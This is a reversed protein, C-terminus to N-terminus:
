KGNYFEEDYDDLYDYNEIFDPKPKDNFTKFREFHDTYESKNWWDDNKDKFITCEPLSKKGNIPEFSNRHIQTFDGAIDVIQGIHPKRLTKYTLAFGGETRQSQLETDYWTREEIWREVPSFHIPQIFHEMDKTWYYIRGHYLGHLYKEFLRPRIPNSDIEKFLPVIYLVAVKPNRKQYEILKDHIKKVTYPSLQIEIAVPINNIRGSLDPVVRNYGKQKNAAIEREAEWHGHPFVKQLYSLIKDRCFNHLEVHKKLLIPSERAHHAFHDKKETCKRIIADSLCTPCYFPGETKTVHEAYVFQNNASKIAKGEILGFCRSIRADSRHDPHILDDVDDEGDELNKKSYLQNM